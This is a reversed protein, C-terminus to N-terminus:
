ETIYIQYNLYVASSRSPQLKIGLLTTPLATQKSGCWKFWNLIEGLSTDTPILIPPLVLATVTHLESSLTM